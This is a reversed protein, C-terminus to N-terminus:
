GLVSLNTGSRSATTRGSVPDLVHWRARGTAVYARSGVVRPDNLRAAGFRQWVLRGAPDYAALGMGPASPDTWVSGVVLALGAAAVVSTAREDALSTQGTEVNVLRLGFPAMRQRDGEVWYDAGSVALVGGGLWAARREPGEATKQPTRVPGLYRVALTLLDVVVVLPGGAVFARGTAADLALAPTASRFSAQGNEGDAHGAPIRDLTVTRLGLRSDVVLLRAPGIGVSPSALVVAGSRWPLSQVLDDEISRRAVIRGTVPDVLLAGGHELILLRRASQWYLGWTLGGPRVSRVVQMRAATDVIRVGDKETHVAVFRGSPSFAHPGASTHDLRLAGPRTRLTTADLLRVWASSGKWTVALVTAGSKTEGARASGGSGALALALVVALGIWARV